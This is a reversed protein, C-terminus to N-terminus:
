KSAEMASDIIRRASGQVGVPAFTVWMNHTKSVKGTIWDVNERNFLNQELWDLRAADKEAKDVRDLLELIAAPNAAAIYAANETANANHTEGICAARDDTVIMRGQYIGSPPTQHWNGQTAAEALKRLEQTM